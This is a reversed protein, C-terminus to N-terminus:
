ANRSRAMPYFFPLTTVEAPTGNATLQTGPEAAEPRLMGLAITRRLGYSYAVSTIKGAADEKTTLNAGAAVGQRGEFLLGALKRNVRGRSRVREVIEQGLYCGKTFSLAHMRGTEHPLTKDDMDAGYRPIGAEIRCTDIAVDAVARAGLPAGARAANRWIDALREVSSWLWYGSEGSFSARAVRLPNLSGDRLEMHELTLMNPPDFGIAERLVELACPGEIAICGAAPGTAEVTVDDAIIHKELIQRVVEVRSPELDLWFTSDDLRFIRADAQIHGQVNLFFAEMGRGPQLAKVDNTVMGHLLRAADKGRVVLRGRHSLDILGSAEKLAWYEEEPASDAAPLQLLEMLASQPMRNGESRARNYGVDQM